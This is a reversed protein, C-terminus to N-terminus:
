WKRACFPRSNTPRAPAAAPAAASPAATLKKATGAEIAALVDTKTLRGDVGLVVPVDATMWGAAAAPPRNLTTWAWRVRAAASARVDILAVWGDDRVGVATSPSNRSPVSLSVIGGPIEGIM